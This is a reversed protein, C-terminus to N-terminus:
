RFRENWAVGKFDYLLFANNMIDKWSTSFSTSYRKMFMSLLAAQYYAELDPM